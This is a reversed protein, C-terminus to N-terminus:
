AGQKMKNLAWWGAYALGGFVLLLGLGSGVQKKSPNRKKHKMTGGPNPIGRRLSKAAYDANRSALYREMAKYTYDETIEGRNKAGLVEQEHFAAGPNHRWEEGRGIEKWSFYHMSKDPWQVAIGARNVAKIIGGGKIKSGIAFDITHSPKDIQKQKAM